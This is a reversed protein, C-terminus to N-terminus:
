SHYRCSGVLIPTTGVSAASLVSQSTAGGASIFQLTIATSGPAVRGTLAGAANAIQFSHLTCDGYDNATSTATVPLGTITLAGSPSGSWGSLQVDFWVLVESGHQTYSGVQVSYAPTGPTTAAVLAPTWSPAGAVYASGGIEFTGTVNLTGSVTETATYTQNLGLVALTSTVAPVTLTYNTGSANASTFTTAGTSSGLLAIDSNTFTQKATWTNANGLALSAVV